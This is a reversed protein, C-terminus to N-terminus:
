EATRAATDLLPKQPRGMSARLEAHLFNEVDDEEYDLIANCVEQIPM